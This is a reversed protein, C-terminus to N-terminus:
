IGEKILYANEQEHQLMYQKYFGGQLSILQDFNGHEILKGNELYYINNAKVINELRHSIVIVNAKSSLSYITNFIIEESEIDINSTAEDFIYIKKPVILNLALALRQKQGGSINNADENIVKDLGIDNVIFDYLNVQKLADYIEQDTVDEKYMKFNDKISQNFIYTDYSVLGINSYYDKKSYSYLDKNNLNINGSNPKYEGLLLKVITSKGSGSPGCIGSLGVGPFNININELANYEKNYSFTVDNLNIDFNDVKDDGWKIEEYELINLIKKGASIGNMAIHFYSGLLRLPLFFEVATLILFLAVYVNINNSYLEYITLSIGGAAGLYAVLDMITVSALQMVLVKMTIKRFEEASINLKENYDKDSQFIKLDKLGQVGDLFLDGMSTYKGWYKAFIKKAYKSVAIISIPILPVLCILLIAVKYDLFVFVLFLIFPAITSYFFQPLYNSFYIDLQEIGEISVQTLGALNLDGIQKQDIKIIKDYIQERLNQKVKRGLIDKLVNATYSAIFKIIITILLLIGLIYYKKANNINSTNTNISSVFIKTIHVIYFTINLSCLLGIIMLIIICVIYKKNNGLLKFLNKDIM